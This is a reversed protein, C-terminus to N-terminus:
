RSELELALWKQEPVGQFVLLYLGPMLPHPEKGGGQREEEPNVPLLKRKVLGARWFQKCM